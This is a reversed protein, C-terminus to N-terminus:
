RMSRVNTDDSGQGAPSGMKFRGAPVVIMEPCDRASKSRTARSSPASRRQASPPANGVRLDEGAASRGDPSNRGEALGAESWAAAGAGGGGGPRRRAGPGQFQAAPGRRSAVIFTRDAEPIDAKRQALWSQAQKLAFGMLLADNKDKDAAKEWARRAAELGSRWSLFERQAAVWEKLKM